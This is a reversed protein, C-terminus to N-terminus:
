SGFTLTVVTYSAVQGSGDSGSPAISQATVTGRPNSGEFRVNLHNSDALQQAEDLDLGSFDPVSVATQSSQQNITVTVSGEYGIKTGAAPYQSEIVDDNSWDDPLDLEWNRLTMNERATEVTQGTLDPMTYDDFLNLIDEDTYNKAVGLTELVQKTIRRSTIQAPWSTEADRPVSLVVLLSYEPDEYPFLSAFSIVNLDDEESDPDADASKHSSTSTKGAIAYGPTSVYSGTGDTVVGRLYKLVTSATSESIVRRITQPSFTRVTNGDADSISAAVQPQMLVGGNAFVNYANLMQLPTVTAQEGFSWTAMDILLPNDHNIGKVEAPLDIGTLELHGFARVYQYFRDIGVTEAVQVFVPNCSTWLGTEMTRLGHGGAVSCSIPYSDWGDVYVPDDSFTQDESVTQLDLAMAATLAKYTSGPEYTDSIARNVWVQGTLYDLQDSDNQPDWSDTGTWDSPEAFPENLDFEGNQAMAKVAGTKTEMLIAVAGEEVDFESVARDLETQLIEQLRIDVNLHVDEGDSAAEALNATNPLAAKSYNDVEAYTYGPTGTLVENYQSEIGNVGTMIQDPKNTFGILTAGIDNYPYERKMETDITVGGIDYDSLFSKLSNCTDRDVERILQVYSLDTEQAAATVTQEDLGLIDAFQAQWDVPATDSQATFASPTIGITYVYTTVALKNGEADYIDGREPYDVVKQYYQEAAAQAYTKHNVVQTNFLAAALVVAFAFMFVAALIIGSKSGSRRRSGPLQPRSRGSRRSPKQKTQPQM